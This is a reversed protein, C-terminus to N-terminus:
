RNTNNRSTSRSRDRDSDEDVLELYQGQGEQDISDYEDILARLSPHSNSRPRVRLSSPSSQASFSSTTTTQPRQHRSQRSFSNHSNSPLRRLVRSPSSSYVPVPSTDSCPSTTSTSSALGNSDLSAPELSADSRRVQHADSMIQSDIRITEMDEQAGSHKVFRRLSRM